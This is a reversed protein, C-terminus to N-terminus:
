GAAIKPIFILESNPTLTELLPEQILVDDIAVGFRAFVDDNLLPFQAALLRCAHRYDNAELETGQVGHTYKEMEAAFIVKVV